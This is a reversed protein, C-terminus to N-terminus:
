NESGVDGLTRERVWPYVWRQMAGALGLGVLCVVLGVFADLIFHNATFVIAALQAWPLLLGFGRVLPNKSM